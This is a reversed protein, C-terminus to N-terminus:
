PRVISGDRRRIAPWAGNYPHDPFPFEAALEEDIDIGLGPQDNPWLSGDCVRPCGPFVDLTAQNFATFEQIGFNQCCLDLALNAAHGIPSTDGPGHWATRVGFFECLSAIKKAPSIGGVQSLHLRIFDILRDKVLPLFENPNNFLEGMAIPISSHRRLLDFYGIEEPPLPDEYFFLRYPELSKALEIALPPPVREHVDHLLEIEDGLERRAYEFLRPALRVYDAPEFINHPSMPGDISREVQLDSSTGYTAQGPVEVQMRIHRYGQEMFGRAKDVVEAPEAGSAHVYTAASMRCKGGLLECVPMGARKGKIDWLAMDVGSLANNLVPGNRWYSSMQSSWYIDEIENVNRGRLFPDLYHEVAQVATKPRQTFTACGLGYLGAQNTEVKVIVLRIGAPATEICRVRDITVNSM